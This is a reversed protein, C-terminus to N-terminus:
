GKCLELFKISSNKGHDKARMKRHTLHSSESYHQLITYKTDLASLRIQGRSRTAVREQTIIRMRVINKTRQIGFTLRTPTSKRASLQNKRM